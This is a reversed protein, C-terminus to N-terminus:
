VSIELEHQDKGYRIASVTGAFFIADADDYIEAAVRLPRRVVNAARASLTATVSSSKTAVIGFAEGARAALSLEGVTLLYPYRGGANQECFEVASSGLTLVLRM